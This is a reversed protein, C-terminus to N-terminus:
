VAKIRGTWLFLFDNETGVEQNGTRVIGIFVM